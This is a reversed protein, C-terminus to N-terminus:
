RKPPFMINLSKIYRKGSEPLKKIKRTMLIEEATVPGDYYNWNSDRDATIVAGKLSVGAFVGKSRSYSYIEGQMLIDTGAEAHRGVPGATVAVDAGLTFKDKLM